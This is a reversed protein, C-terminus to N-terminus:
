SAAKLRSASRPHGPSRRLSCVGELSLGPLQQRAMPDGREAVDHISDMGADTLGLRQGRGCLGKFGADRPLLCGAERQAGRAPQVAERREDLPQRSEVQAGAPMTMLLACVLASLIRVHM